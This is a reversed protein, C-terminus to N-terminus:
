LSEAAKHELRLRYSEGAFTRFTYSPVHDPAAHLGYQDLLQVVRRAVAPSVFGSINM